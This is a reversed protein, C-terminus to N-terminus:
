EREHDREVSLVRKVVSHPPTTLSTCPNPLPRLFSHSVTSPVKGPNLTLRDFTAAHELWVALLEM